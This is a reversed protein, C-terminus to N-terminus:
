NRVDGPVRPPFRARPKRRGGAPGRLVLPHLLRDGRVAARPRVLQGGRPQDDVLVHDGPRGCGDARGQAPGVVRGAQAAAAGPGRAAPQRDGRRAGARRARHRDGADGRGAARHGERRAEADDREAHPEQADQVLHGARHHPDAHPVRHVRHRAGHERAGPRPGPVRRVFRVPPRIDGIDIKIGKRRAERTADRALTPLARPRGGERGPSAERAADKAADAAQKADSQALLRPAPAVPQAQVASPEPLVYLLTAAALAGGLVLRRVLPPLYRTM